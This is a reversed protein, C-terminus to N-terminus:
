IAQHVREVRDVLARGLAKGLAVELHERGAAGLMMRFQEGREAEVGAIGGEPLLPQAHDLAHDPLQLSQMLDNFNSHSRGTICRNFMPRVPTIRKTYRRPSGIFSVARLM